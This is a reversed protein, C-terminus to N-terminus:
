NLVGLSTAISGVPAYASTASILFLRIQRMSMAVASTVVSAPEDSPKPLALPMPVIACNQSGEPTAIPGVPANASTASKLFLRMQRM